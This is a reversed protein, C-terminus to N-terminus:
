TETEQDKRIWRVRTLDQPQNETMPAHSSSKRETNDGSNQLNQPLAHRTVPCCIHRKPQRQRRSNPEQSHFRTPREERGYYITMEHEHLKQTLLGTRILHTSILKASLNRSLKFTEEESLPKGSM